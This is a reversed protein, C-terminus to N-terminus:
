EVPIPQFHLFLLPPSGKIAQRRGEVAVLSSGADVRVNSVHGHLLTSLIGVKLQPICVEWCFPRRSLGLMGLIAM